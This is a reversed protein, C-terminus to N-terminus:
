SKPCTCTSAEIPEVWKAGCKPCRKVVLEDSGPRYQGLQSHDPGKPMLERPRQLAKPPVPGRLTHPPNYAEVRDKPLETM